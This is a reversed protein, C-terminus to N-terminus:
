YLNFSSLSKVFNYKDIQNNDYLEIKENVFQM